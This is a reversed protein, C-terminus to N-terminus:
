TFPLLPELIQFNLVGGYESVYLTYYRSAALLRLRTTTHVVALDEGISCESDLAVHAGDCKLSSDAFMSKTTTIKVQIM